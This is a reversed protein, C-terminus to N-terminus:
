ALKIRLKVGGRSMQKNAERQAAEKTTLGLDQWDNWGQYTEFYQLKYHRLKTGSNRVRVKKSVLFELKNGVRRVAKVPIWGTKPPNSKKPKVFSLGTRTLANKAREKAEKMNNARFEKAYSYEFPYTEYAFVDQGTYGYYEDSSTYGQRNIRKRTIYVEYAKGEPDYAILAM